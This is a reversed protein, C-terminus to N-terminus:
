VKRFMRIVFAPRIQTDQPSVRTMSVAPISIDTPARTAISQMISATPIRLPM